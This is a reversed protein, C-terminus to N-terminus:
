LKNILAWMRLQKLILTKNVEIKSAELKNNTQYPNM